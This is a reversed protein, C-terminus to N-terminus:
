LKHIYTSGSVACVGTGCCSTSCVCVIIICSLQRNYNSKAVVCSGVLDGDCLAADNSGVNEANICM